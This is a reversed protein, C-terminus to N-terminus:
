SKYREEIKEEIAKFHLEVPKKWSSPILYDYYLYCLFNNILTEDVKWNQIDEIIELIQEKSSATEVINDIAFFAEGLVIVRKNFLLSEIAVSSNITMVATSNQILTQTNESSFIVKNNVLKYLNRYDSVRDSPHEKIVFPIDCQISLWEIITFLEVMNKIWPSHQLIQTDYAVQFPVFIYQEPLDTDFLVKKKKSVRVSLQKPLMVEKYDLSKYFHSERLLSNSANVGEFDMTTTDPLVGNEFYIIPIDMSKAVEIAVAQHFKKGNWVVLYSPKFQKLYHYITSSLIPMQLKLFQFYVWRHLSNQYKVMLEKEKLKLIYQLNLKKRLTFMKFRVQLSPFFLNIGEYPLHKSLKKFYKHQHKTVAFFFLKM